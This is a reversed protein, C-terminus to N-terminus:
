DPYDRLFDSGNVEIIKVENKWSTFNNCCPDYNADIAYYADKIKEHEDKYARFLETLGILIMYILNLNQALEEISKTELQTISFHRRFNEEDFSEENNPSEKEMSNIGDFDSVTNMPNFKQKSGSQETM